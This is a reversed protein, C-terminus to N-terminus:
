AKQCGATHTPRTREAAETAAAEAAAGLTDNARMGRRKQWPWWAAHRMILTVQHRRALWIFLWGGLLTVATTLIGINRGDHVDAPEPAPLPISVRHGSILLRHTNVGYPTCTMLTVRDEGPVIRLKSTDDPLIVSIRDVKYGLTEGMIEIYFFDGKRVEDLRTFMLAQVLGRHGTIVSHTSTGGVPLSSGYLHGAGSALAEESTGHYIPLNISQKPVKITGMVGNGTDLLSQYEKDKASASDKGSARSGGQESSFPDVAEGLVPQGSAALKENYEHAAKLKDEAQPYPWGAVSKATTATTAALERDSEFQLALPFCAVSIAAILLIITIARMIFLNRQLRRREAAIDTVDITEAFPTAVFTKGDTQEDTPHTTQGDAPRVASHSAPDTRRSGTPRPSAANSARVSKVSTHKGASRRHILAM